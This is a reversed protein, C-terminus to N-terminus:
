KEALNRRMSAKLETAVALIAAQEESSCDQYMANWEAKSYDAGTLLYDATCDLANTLRNLVDVSFNIKGTEIDSIHSMSLEALEAQSLAKQTRVARIRIGIANLDVTLPADTKM